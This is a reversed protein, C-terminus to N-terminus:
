LGKGKIIKDLLRLGSPGSREPHFQLGTVSGKVAASVFSMGGVETTTAVDKSRAIGYSHVFYYHEKSGSLTNWGMHPSPTIDLKVVQGDILGLGPTLGGETSNQAMLQMGLCIGLIPNGRETWDIIREDWGSATLNKMAPDFAGVGPLILFSARKAEEPLSLVAGDLGLRNLARVVNGLNGAGYDIIGVNM